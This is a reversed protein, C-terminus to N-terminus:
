HQFNHAEGQWLSAYLRGKSAACHILTSYATAMLHSKIRTQNGAPEQCHKSPVYLAHAHSCVLNQASARSSVQRMYGMCQGVLSEPTAPLLM